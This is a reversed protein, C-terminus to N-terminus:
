DFLMGTLLPQVVNNVNRRTTECPSMGRMGCTPDPRENESVDSMVPVTQPVPDLCFLTSIIRPLSRVIGRHLRTWSSSTRISSNNNDNRRSSSRRRPIMEVGRAKYVKSGEFPLTAHQMCKRNRGSSVQGTVSGCESIVSPAKIKFLPPIKSTM